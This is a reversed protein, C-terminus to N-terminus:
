PVSSADREQVVYIPDDDQTLNSRRVIRFVGADSENVIAIPVKQRFHVLLRRGPKLEPSRGASDTPLLSRPEGGRATDAAIEVGASADIVVLTM